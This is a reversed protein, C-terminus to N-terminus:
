IESLDKAYHDALNFPVIIDYMSVYQYVLLIYVDVWLSVQFDLGVSLKGNELIVSM